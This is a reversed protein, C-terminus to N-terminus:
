LIPERRSPHAGHSAGLGQVGGMARRWWSCARASLARVSSAGARRGPAGPGSRARRGLSLADPARTHKGVCRGSPPLLIDALQEGTSNRMPGTREVGAADGESEAGALYRYVTATSVTAGTPDSGQHHRCGSGTRAAPRLAGRCTTATRAHAPGSAASRRLCAGSGSRRASGGIRRESVAVTEARIRM